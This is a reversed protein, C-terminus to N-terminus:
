VIRVLQEEGLTMIQLYGVNSIRKKAIKAVKQKIEESKLKQGLTM